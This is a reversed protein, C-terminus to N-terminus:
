QHNRIIEYVMSAALRTTRNDIDYQPSLEAIDYCITKKSRAVKCLLPIVQWPTLGLAQPASVGPAYTQAFVDLCLSLYIKDNNAISNDIYKDSKKSNGLYLEEASVIQVGYKKATNFLSATNGAPQIGLCTYHFNRKQSRCLNAIQLFSTGSSGKENLLTPRMDFHADFNIIGIKRRMFTQTIGEYIGFATEHGGGLVIPTINKALLLNVAKALANQAAELDGNICVINGADYCHITEKDPTALTAIFPRIAIPGIAAGRRGLNRYIGEDCCFGLLAFIPQSTKDINNLNSDDLLNLMQIIQFFCSNKPCDDRGQWLKIEPPLYHSRWADYQKIM